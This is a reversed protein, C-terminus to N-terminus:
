MEVISVTAGRPLGVITGNEALLVTDFGLPFEACAEARATLARPTLGSCTFTSAEALGGTSVKVTFMTDPETPGGVKHEGLQPVLVILTAGEDPFMPTGRNVNPIVDCLESSTAIVLASEEISGASRDAAQRLISAHALAAETMHVADAASSCAWLVNLPAPNALRRLQGPFAFAELVCRFAAQVAMPDYSTVESIM